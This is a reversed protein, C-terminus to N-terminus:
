GQVDWMRLISRSQWKIEIKSVKPFVQNLPSNYDYAPSNLYKIADPGYSFFEGGLFANTAYLNIISIAVAFLEVLLFNVAYRTHQRLTRAM